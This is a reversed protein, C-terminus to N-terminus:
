KKNGHVQKHIQRALDGFIKEAFQMKKINETKNKRIMKPFQDLTKQLDKPLTIKSKKKMLGREHGLAYYKALDKVLAEGCARRLM